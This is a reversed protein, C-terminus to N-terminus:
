FPVDEDAHPPGYAEHVVDQLEASQGIIDAIWKPTGEPLEGGIEYVVTPNEATKKEIGKYLPLISSINTYVKEGSKGHVVQIMCNVGILKTIDFGELESETFARGRWSQLDRRLNSKENLSMTYKKSVVRPLDLHKGDREISLRQDPIEWIIICQHASKGFKESFQTGLDYIASCVGQYVDEPIPPLSSGGEKAILAM